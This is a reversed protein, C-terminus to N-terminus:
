YLLSCFGREGRRKINMRSYKDALIILASYFLSYSCKMISPILTSIVNTMWPHCLIRKMAKFIVKWISLLIKCSKMTNNQISILLCFFYHLKRQRHQCGFLVHTSILSGFLFDAKWGDLFVLWLGSVWECFNHGYRLRVTCGEQWTSCGLEIMCQFSVVRPIFKQICSLGGVNQLVDNGCYM